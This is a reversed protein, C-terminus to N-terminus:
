MLTFTSSSLLSVLRYVVISRVYSCIKTVFINYRSSHTRSATALNAVRKGWTIQLCYCMIILIHIEMPQDLYRGIFVNEDCNVDRKLTYLADSNKSKDLYFTTMLGVPFLDYSKQHFVNLGISHLM